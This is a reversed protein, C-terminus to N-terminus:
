CTPLRVGIRGGLLEEIKSRHGEPTELFLFSCIWPERPTSNLCVAEAELLEGGLRFRIRVKTLVRVPLALLAKAGGRSLSLIRAAAYPKGPAEIEGMVPASGENLNENM